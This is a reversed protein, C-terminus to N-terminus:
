VELVHRSRGKAGALNSQINYHWRPTVNSPPSAENGSMSWRVLRPLQRREIHNRQRPSSDWRVNPGDHVHRRHRSRFCSRSRENDETSPWQLPSLPPLHVLQPLVPLPCYTLQLLNSSIRGHRGLHYRSPTGVGLWDQHLLVLLM